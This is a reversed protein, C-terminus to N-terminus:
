MRVSPSRLRMASLTALLRGAAGSLCSHGSPYEPHPPTALLPLWAADATTAANGDTDALTIATVPRWFLYTYKSDWCGIAADAMAINVM